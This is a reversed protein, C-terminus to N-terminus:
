DAELLRAKQAEYEQQTLVGQERLDNLKAVEDAVSLPDRGAMAMRRQNEEGVEFILKQVREPHRIDTFRNQGYEGASEIRLDGAGVIREFVTQGFRVDNINELPIEMSHKAFWGYRHIVRDSTIVFHSTIWAIFWRGPFAVLVVIAVMVLGWRTWSAWSDPFNVLLVVLAAVTVITIFAPFALAIWHPRLDAILTEGQALLKKPFAM